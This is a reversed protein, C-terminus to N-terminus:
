ENWRIQVTIESQFGTFDNKERDIGSTAEHLLISRGETANLVRVWHYDDIGDTPITLTQNNLVEMTKRFLGWHGTRTHHYLTIQYYATSIAPRTESNGGTLNIAENESYISTVCIQYAKQKKFELWGTNVTPDWTGDPSTMNDELLTTLMAHPDTVPVGTDTIAV